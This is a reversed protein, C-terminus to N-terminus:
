KLLKEKIYVDLEATSRVGLTILKEGNSPVIQIWNKDCWENLLSLYEPETSRTKSTTPITAREAINMLEQENIFGFKYNPLNRESHVIEQLLHKFYEFQKPTHHSASRTIENDVMSILVYYKEATIEDITARLMMNFRKLRKNIEQVIQFIKEDDLQDSLGNLMARFKDETVCGNAIM